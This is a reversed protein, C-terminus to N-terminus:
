AFVPLVAREAVSSSSLTQTEEWKLDEKAEALAADLDWDAFTLYSRAERMSLNPLTLRLQYLKFKEGKKDQSRASQVVGHADVTVPIRLTAPALLLNSGSFGNAQRLKVVSIKYKLCLGQLTDTPLVKHEVFLPKTATVSAAAGATEEQIGRNRGEDEKEEKKDEHRYGIPVLKWERESSSSGGGERCDKAEEDDKASTTVVLRWEMGQPPKPLPRHLCAYDAVPGRSVDVRQGKWSWQEGMFM